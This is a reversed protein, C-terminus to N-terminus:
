SPCDDPRFTEIFRRIRDVMAIGGKFDFQQRGSRNEAWIANDRVCLSLSEEFGRDLMIEWLCKLTQDSPYTTTGINTATGKDADMRSAFMDIAVAVVEPQQQLATYLKRRADGETKDLQNIIATVGEQSLLSQKALVKLASTRMYENSNELRETVAEITERPLQRQYHFADLAAQQVEIEPNQLLETVAEAAEPLLEWQTGLVDLAADRVDSEEARLQKVVARIIDHPLEPQSKFAGLIGKRIQADPDNLERAISRIVAKPLESQKTLAILSAKSIDTAADELRQTLIHVSTQPLDTKGGLISRIARHSSEGTDEIRRIIVDILVQPLVPKWSFYRAALEVIYKEDNTLKSITRLVPGPLPSHAGLARVAGERVHENRDGLSEAMKQVTERPLATQNQLVELAAKRVGWSDHSLLEVVANVKAQTLQSQAPLTSLDPKLLELDSATLLGKIAEITTQPLNSQSNFIEFVAEQVEPESTELRATMANIISQPLNEQNHIKLVTESYGFTEIIAMILGPCRITKFRLSMLRSEQTYTDPQEVHKIIDEIETGSLVSQKLLLTLAAHRVAYNQYQLQKFIVRITDSPLSTQRELLNIAAKRADPNAEKELKNTILEVTSESFQNCCGELANLAAIQVGSEQDEEIQQTIVQITDTPLQCRCYSLANLLALKKSPCQSVLQETIVEVLVNSFGCDLNLDRIRDPLNETDVLRKVCAKAFPRRALSQCQYRLRNRGDRPTQRTSIIHKELRQVVADSDEDSLNSQGMLVIIIKDHFQKNVDKNDNLLGFLIHIEKERLTSVGRLAGLATDILRWHSELILSVIVELVEQSLTRRGIVKLITIKTETQGQQLAIRLSTNPFETEMALSARQRFNCEFLLWDSLRKELPDRYSRHETASISVESLCHMVLRQHSPGLLDLPEKEIEDFLEHGHGEKDLLGAVFRWMINYGANYKHQLLFHRPNIMKVIKKDLLTCKMDVSGKWHRVFYRAAFYEQFTLHIFHYLQNSPETSKDSTRLFSLCPLSQDLSLFLESDENACNRDDLDFEIRDVVLGAFALYELFQLETEVEKEVVRQRATRLSKAKAKELREADKKWLSTQIAQYLSTMTDPNETNNSNMDNWCYCFADLQIPIRVLGWVLEHCYLFEKLESVNENHVKDIYEDIQTENFGITELELDVKVGHPLSASPRSTIIVNPQGLLHSLFDSMHRSDSVGVVEDWGDLLFLTRNQALVNNIEKAFHTSGDIRPKESSQFFEYDFLTTLHFCSSPLQKLHRLPIWLVRDFLDNWMENEMFDHIIKKCLTTKGIGARGRILIRRPLIDIDDSKKQKDFINTLSINDDGAQLELRQRELLTFPSGKEDRSSTGREAQRVIALNIYSQGKDVPKGSLREIKLREETYCKERIWADAQELLTGTRIIDIFGRVTGVVQRYDAEDARFKKMMVHTRDLPIRMPVCDLTASDMDVLWDLLGTLREKQILGWAHLGPQAFKAIDAFSTGRFPTALFVIGRTADEIAKYGDKAMVLAKILIVGGLCSAIFLFRRDKESLLSLLGHLLSEALEEIGFPVSDNTEFMAAPWNCTYIRTGPVEKPLMESDILWNVNQGDSEKYTWTDPSKTDLGHIAIIDIGTDRESITEANPEVLKFEVPRPREVAQARPTVGEPM